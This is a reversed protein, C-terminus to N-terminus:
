AKFSLGRFLQRRHAGGPEISCWVRIWGTLVVIDSSRSDSAAGVNVPPRGTGAPAVGNVPPRCVSVPAGGIVQQGRPRTVPKAGECAGKAAVRRRYANANHAAIQSRKFREVENRLRGGPRSPVGNPRHTVSETGGSRFINM